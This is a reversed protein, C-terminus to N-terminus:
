GGSNFAFLHALTPAPMASRLALWRRLTLWRRRGVLLQQKSSNSEYPTDKLLPLRCAGVWADSNYACTNKEDLGEGMMM